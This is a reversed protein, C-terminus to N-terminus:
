ELVLKKRITEGPQMMCSEKYVVLPVEKKNEQSSTICVEDNQLTVLIRQGHWMVSYKVSEWWPIMHPNIEVKDERLVTGGVGRVIAMWAGAACASHIGQHACHHEDNLDLMATQMFYTYASEPEDM